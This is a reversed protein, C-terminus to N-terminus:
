EPQLIESLWGIINWLGRVTRVCAERLM